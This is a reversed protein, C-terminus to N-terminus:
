KNGDLLDRPLLENAKEFLKNIDEELTKIENELNEPSVGIKELENVIEKESTQLQELRAEARYKMNKSKDLENKLKNLRDEYNM